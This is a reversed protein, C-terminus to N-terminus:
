LKAPKWLTNIAWLGKKKHLHPALTHNWKQSIKLQTRNLIIYISDIYFVLFGTHSGSIKKLHQTWALHRFGNSIFFLDPRVAKIWCMLSPSLIKLRYPHRPAHGGGLTIPLVDMCRLLLQAWVHYGSGIFHKKLNKPTKKLGNFKLKDDM